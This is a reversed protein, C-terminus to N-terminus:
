AIIEWKPLHIVACSEALAAQVHWSLSSYTLHCPPPPLPRLFFLLLFFPSFTHLLPQFFVIHSPNFFLSLATSLSFSLCLSSLCYFLCTQSLQKSQKMDGLPHVANTRSIMVWWSMDTPGLLVPFAFLPDAGFLMLWSWGPWRFFFFMDSM